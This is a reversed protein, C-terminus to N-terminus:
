IRKSERKASYEFEAKTAFQELKIFNQLFKFTVYM